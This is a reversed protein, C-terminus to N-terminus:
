FRPMVSAGETEVVDRYYYLLADASVEADYVRLDAIDCDGISYDDDANLTLTNNASNTLTGNEYVMVLDANIVIAMMNWSDETFNNRLVVNVTGSNGSVSVKDADIDISFNGDNLSFLTGDIQKAWFLFTRVPSIAIEGNGAIGDTRLASNERNDPGLITIIDADTLSVGTIRDLLPSMEDRGVWLLLNQALEAQWEHQTMVRKAPSAAKDKSNYYQTRRVMRWESKNTTFGIQLRHAEVNRDHVLDGDLPINKIRASPTIKGDAYLQLNAEFGVRLGAENYGATGKSKEDVPRMYIHSESHELFYHEETGRDEAFIAECEIDEGEYDGEGGDTYVRALGSGEPGNRTGIERWRGTESDLVLQREQNLEDNMKLTSNRALPKPYAGDYVSWGNGQTPKAAYRLILDTQTVPIGDLVLDFDGVTIYATKTTITVVGAQSTVKLTVTYTGAAKYTHTPNEETSTGGDGFSWFYTNM